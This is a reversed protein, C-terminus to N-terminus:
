SLDESNLIWFRFNKIVKKSNNIKVIGSIPPCKERTRTSNQLFQKCSSIIALAEIMLIIRQTGEVLLLQELIEAIKQREKGQIQLGRKAKDFVARINDDGIRFRKRVLYNILPRERGIGEGNRQALFQVDREQFLEHM